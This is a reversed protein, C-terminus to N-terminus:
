VSLDIHDGDYTLSEDLIVQFENRNVIPVNMNHTSPCIDEIKKQTFIDIGIM